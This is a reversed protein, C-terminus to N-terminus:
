FDVRLEVGYTRPDVCAETNEGSVVPDFNCSINNGLNKGYVALTAGSKFLDRAELRMDLSKVGSPTGVSSTNTLQAAAEYYSATLALSQYPGPIPLQAQGTIGWTQPTVGDVNQGALNVGTLTTYQTFEAFVRSYFGTLELWSWPIATLEAEFGKMNATNSQGTIPNRNEVVLSAAGSPLIYTQTVQINNYWSDFLAVNTRLPVDGLDWDGKLGVEVDKITEPAYEALLVSDPGPPPYTNFGGAQYSKRTAAYVLLRDTAQWSATFNYNASSSDLTLNRTCTALNTGPYPEPGAAPVPLTQLQCVPTPSGGYNQTALTRHDWTYRYGATLSLGSLWQSLDYTAQGFLAYSRYNTRDTIFDPTTLSVPFPFVVTDDDLKGADQSFVGGVRWDLRDDFLKGYIQTENYLAHDHSPAVAQLVDAPTGDYDLAFKIHSYAYYAIDRVSVQGINWTLTNRISDVEVNNPQATDQVVKDRPLHLQQQVYDYLDDTGLITNFPPSYLCTLAPTTPGTCPGEISTPVRPYPNEHTRYITVQASDNFSDNPQWLISARVAYNDRNNFQLGPTTVSSLTGDRKEYEGSLRVALTDDVPINVAGELRRENYNGYRADIYGGFDSLDPKQTVFLVAGGVSNKGFLTGQPGKLEQVSSLDFTDYVLLRSDIPVEDIYTTVSPDVSFGPEFSGRILFDTTGFVSQRIQLSPVLKQLDTVSNAADDQLRQGSVASIALPVKQQSEERRRASVVVTEIEAPKASDSSQSQNASVVQAEAPTLLAPMLALSAAAGMLVCNLYRM